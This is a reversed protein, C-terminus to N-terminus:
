VVDTRVGVVFGLVVYWTKSVDQSIDKPGGIVKLGAQTAFDVYGQQTCLPPLLM